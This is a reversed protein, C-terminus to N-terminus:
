REVCKRIALRTRHPPFQIEIQRTVAYRIKRVRGDMGTRERFKVGTWRGHSPNEFYVHTIWLAAEAGEKLVHQQGVVVVGSLRGGLVVDSCWPSAPEECGNHFPRPVPGRHRGIDIGPVDSPHQPNLLTAAYRCEIGLLTTRMRRQRTHFVFLAM